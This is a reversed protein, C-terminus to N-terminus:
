KQIAILLLGPETLGAYMNCTQQRWSEMSFDWAKKVLLSGYSLELNYIWRFIM